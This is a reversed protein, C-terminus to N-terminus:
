GKSRATKGRKSSDYVGEGRANKDAARAILKSVVDAPLKAFSKFRICGKAVDVGTLEDRFEDVAELNLVYLSLHRKQAAFACLLGHYQYYPMNYLVTEEADPAASRILTRLSELDGRRAEDVNAIYEDVDQFQKKQGSTM